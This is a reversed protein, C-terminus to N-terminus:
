TPALYIAKGGSIQAMQAISANLAHWANERSVNEQLKSLLLLQNRAFLHTQEVRPRYITKLPDPVACIIPINRPLLQQFLEQELPSIFTSIPIFGRHCDALIESIISPAATLPLRRSLRVSLLPHSGDLLSANGVCTWWEDLPIFPSKFPEIVKMPPNTTHMLAWKLPNLRIYEDVHENIERSVCLYDHYNEQWSIDLGLQHIRSKSWRKIDYVFRGISYLPKALGPPFTVRFHLHEPMIQYSRITIEKNNKMEVQITTELLQGASSLLMRGDPTIQGFTPIRPDLNFSIFM